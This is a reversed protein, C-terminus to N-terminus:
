QKQRRVVLGVRGPLAVEIRELADGVVAGVLPVLLHTRAHLLAVLDLPIGSASRM